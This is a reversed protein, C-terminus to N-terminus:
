AGHNHREVGLSQSPEIQMLCRLGQVLINKNLSGPYYSSHARSSQDPVKSNFLISEVGRQVASTIATM